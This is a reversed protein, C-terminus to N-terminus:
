LKNLLIPGNELRVQIGGRVNGCRTPLEIVYGSYWGTRKWMSHTTRYCLRFVVGYTEWQTSTVNKNIKGNEIKM